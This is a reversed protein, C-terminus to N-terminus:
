EVITTVEFDRTSNLRLWCRIRRSSNFLRGCNVIIWAVCHRVFYEFINWHQDGFHTCCNSYWCPLKVFDVECLIWWWWRCRVCQSRSFKRNWYIRINIGQLLSVSQHGGVCNLIKLAEVAAGGSLWRKRRIIDIARIIIINNFVTQLVSRVYKQPFIFIWLNAM